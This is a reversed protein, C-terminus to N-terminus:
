AGEDPKIVEVGSPPDFVFRGDEAGPNLKVSSFTIETENDFGDVIVVQEVVYDSRQVTLRLSKFSVDSSKPTLEFGVTKRSKKTDVEAVDFHEDIQNLDTLLDEMGTGAGSLDDYVIVQKDAPSYISMREGDTLFLKADSGSFEWRMKRPKKLLVTGKQKTEGGMAVSRTVQVFDASLTEVGEYTKEVAAVWEDVSQPESDQAFTTVPVVALGLAFLASTLRRM